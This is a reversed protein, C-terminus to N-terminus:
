KRQFIRGTLDHPRGEYVETVARQEDFKRVGGVVLGIAAGHSEAGPKAAPVRRDRELVSHGGCKVGIELDQQRAFRIAAAVDAPSTAQAILAPRHDVMANWVERHSDYGDDSPGVVAGAFGPIGVAVPPM